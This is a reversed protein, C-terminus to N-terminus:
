GFILLSNMFLLHITKGKRKKNVLRRSCVKVCSEALQKTELNIVTRKLYEVEKAALANSVKEQKKEAEAKKLAKM